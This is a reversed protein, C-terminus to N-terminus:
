HSSYASSGHCKHICAHFQFFGNKQEIIKNTLGSSHFYSIDQSPEIIIGGKEDLVFVQGTKGIHISSLIKRFVELDKEKDGVYFMGIVKNDRLIPEYATIYWDNVVFARGMYSKGTIITKAVPSNNPIFTGVARMSDNTLVNTSIRVFGSDCRQFVTITGGFLSFAKDVFFNHNYIEKGNWYWKKLDTLCKNKTVQNTVQCNFTQNTVKFDNSYLLDHAVKINTAVKERKLVSERSLMKVITNTELVLNERTARNIEKKFNYISFFTVIAISFIIGALLM